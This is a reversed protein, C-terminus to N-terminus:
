RGEKKESLCKIHCPTKYIREIEEVDIKTLSDVRTDNLEELRKRLLDTTERMEDELWSENVM